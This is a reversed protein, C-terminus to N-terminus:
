SGTSPKRCPAACDAAGCETALDLLTQAPSTVPLGRHTEAEVSRRGHLVLGNVAGRRRPTSVHILKPEIASLEWWWGGTAHSLMAGPGAYILAALLRGRTSLATHGLAYVGPHVQHLRQELTWRWVTVESLGVQTIQRRALVGHQRAALDAIARKAIAKRPTFAVRGDGAM